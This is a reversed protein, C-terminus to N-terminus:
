EVTIALVLRPEDPRAPEIVTLYTSGPAVTLTTRFRPAVVMGLAYKDQRMGTWTLELFRGEALPGTSPAGQTLVVNRQAHWQFRQFPLSSLQRELANLRSDIEQPRGSGTAQMVLINVKASGDAGQAFAPARLAVLTATGVVFPLLRQLRTM